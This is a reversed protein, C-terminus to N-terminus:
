KLRWRNERQRFEAEHKKIAAYTPTREAGIASAIENTTAEKGGALFARVRDLITGPAATPDAGNSLTSQLQGLAQRTTQLKVLEAKQREIEEDIAKLDIGTVARLIAKLKAM